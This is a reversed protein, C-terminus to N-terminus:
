CINKSIWEKAETISNVYQHKVGARRYCRSMQEKVVSKCDVDAIVVSCAILGRSRREILSQTLTEEAEPTFISTQHLTVIQNWQGVELRQICSELADRYHKLLEDNFPGTADVLLLQGEVKVEFVGHEKFKM